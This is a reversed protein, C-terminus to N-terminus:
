NCKRIVAIYKRGSLFNNFRKGLRKLILEYTIIGEDAMARLIAISSLDVNKEIFPRKLYIDDCVVYGDASMLRVANVIDSIAYPSLHNGDVWILDYSSSISLLRLSNLTLFNINSPTHEKFHYNKLGYSYVGKNRVNEHSLDLTDIESNPFLYGLFTTTIGQFTGIELIKRVKEEKAAMSAFLVLHESSMGNENLNEKLEVGVSVAQLLNLAKDRELGMRAFTAV